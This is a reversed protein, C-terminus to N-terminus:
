ESWEYPNGYRQGDGYVSLTNITKTCFAPSSNSGIIQNYDDYIYSGIECRTNQFKKEPISNWAVCKRLTTCNDNSYCKRITAIKACEQHAPVLALTSEAYTMQSGQMATGDDDICHQIGPISTYKRKPHKGGTYDTVRGIFASRAADCGEGFGSPACLWIACEDLRNKRIGDSAAYAYFASLLGLVLAVKNIKM